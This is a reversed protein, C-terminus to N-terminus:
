EHWKMDNQDDINVNADIEGMTNNDNDEDTPLNSVMEDDIVGMPQMPIEQQNGNSEDDSVYDNEKEEDVTTYSDAEGHADHADHLNAVYDGDERLEQIIDKTTEVFVMAGNKIKDFFAGFYPDLKSM